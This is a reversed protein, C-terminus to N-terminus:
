DSTTKQTSGSQSNDAVSKSKSNDATKNNDTKSDKNDKTEKNVKGDTETSAAGLLNRKQDKDSKFDTEYWGSGKLRFGAASVLKNLSNKECQPCFTIPEDSVKQLKDLRYNCNKCEYEYIPM